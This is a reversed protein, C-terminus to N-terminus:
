CRSALPRPPDKRRRDLIALMRMAATLSRWCRSALPRPPDKRRRDIIALMRTDNMRYERRRPRKIRTDLSIEYRVALGM